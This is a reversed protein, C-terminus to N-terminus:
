LLTDKLCNLGLKVFLPAMRSNFGQGHWKSAAISVVVGSYQRLFQM